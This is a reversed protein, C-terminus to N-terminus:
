QPDTKIGMAGRLRDAELHVESTDLAQVLGKWAKLIALTDQNTLGLLFTKIKNVNTKTSKRSTKM